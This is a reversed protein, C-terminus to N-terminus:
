TTSAPRKGRAYWRIPQAVVPRPAAGHAVLTADLKKGADDALAATLAAGVARGRAPADGVAPAFALQDVIHLLHHKGRENTSGYGKILRGCCAIQLGLAADEGLGRGVAALWREILVQEVGFRSGWRRVRKFSGLLRLAVLGVVSHSPLALPLAYPLRGRAVRRADWRHLAQAWRSPLMAAFEPVGPKFHDHVRLLEGPAVKVERRVRDFRSARAKLEAVRVIDDFAMWLALWRAVENVAALADTGAVVLLRELRQVYLEAYAADQYDLLRDYGLATIDHLAAPLRKAVAPPLVPLKAKAEAALEASVERAVAMLRDRQSKANVVRDWAAAFGRLSPEVGKGGARITAEYAAREFPLLGSACCWGALAGFMVASVVANSQQALTAMDLLELERANSRLVEVLKSEPVRGDAQQMREITTYSRSTSAVVATRDPSVLGLACQRTAEMLESGVLLDLGGPVAYLGFVPKRGGLASDPLPFIEVYYTTAGTRQAVGPISTGQVAHGCHRATDVLWDALVGGGEGGLASLLITVPRTTDLESM